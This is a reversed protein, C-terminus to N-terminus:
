KADAGSSGRSSKGTARVAMADKVQAVIAPPAEVISRVVKEAEEGTIPDLDFELKRAEAVFAPDRAMADFARRLANLRERPMGPPGAFPQQLAVPAGAFEFMRRQEANRAYDTLLAVQALEPNRKLGIQVIPIIKHDAVWQPRTSKWSSWRSNGDGQIEGREIALTVAQGDQYGSVIKFKTGLTANILAPYTAKTGGAGTAGLVVEIRRADDLTRVGATHWVAIVDATQALSALWSLQESKFRIGGRGVAQYFPIANNFTALVTGDNPATGYLYNLARIGSAGPMNEVVFSPHGAIHNGLHRAVLRAFLDYGRGPGTAVIIRVQRGAYFDEAAAVTPLQMLGFTALVAALTVWGCRKPSYHDLKM